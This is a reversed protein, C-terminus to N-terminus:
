RNVGLVIRRLTSRLILFCVCCTQNATYRSYNLSVWKAVDDNWAGDFTLTNIVAKFVGAKRLQKKIEQDGTEGLM